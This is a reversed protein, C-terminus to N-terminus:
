CLCSRRGPLPCVVIVFHPMGIWGMLGDPVQRFEIRRVDADSIVGCSTGITDGLSRSNILGAVEVWSVLFFHVDEFGLPRSGFIYVTDIRVKKETSHM